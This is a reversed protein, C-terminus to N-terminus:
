SAQLSFRARCMSRANACGLTLRRRMARQRRSNDYTVPTEKATDANRRRQTTGACVVVSAAYRWGRWCCCCCSLHGAGHLAASEGHARHRESCGEAGGCSVTQRRVLLIKKADRGEGGGRAVERATGRRLTHREGVCSQRARTCSGTTALRARRKAQRHTCLYSQTRTRTCAAAM